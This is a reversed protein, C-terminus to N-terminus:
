RSLSPLDRELPSSRGNLSRFLPEVGRASGRVVGCQHENEGTRGNKLKLNETNMGRM